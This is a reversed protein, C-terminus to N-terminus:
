VRSGPIRPTIPPPIDAANFADTARQVALQGEQYIRNAATQATAGVARGLGATASGFGAAAGSVYPRARAATARARVEGEYRLKGLYKNAYTPAKTETFILIISVIFMIGAVIALVLNTWFLAEAENKSISTSCGTSRIRDYFYTNIAFVVAIALFVITVVILFISYSSTVKGHEQRADAEPVVQASDGLRAPASMTKKDQFSKQKM